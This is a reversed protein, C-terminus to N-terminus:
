SDAARMVGLLEDFAKLILNDARFMSPTSQDPESSSPFTSLIYEADSRGLGYLRFYAGDLEAMLEAREDPKWKHVPPDFGAAETLLVSEVRVM